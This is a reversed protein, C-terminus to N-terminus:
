FGFRLGVSISRNAARSGISFGGGSFRFDGALSNSQAFLPSNLNGIPTGANVRNFVNTTVVSFNLSYRRPAPSSSSASKDEGFKFEKAFILLPFIFNPGRGANREIIKDGPAPNPDLAGFPTVVVGPKNLNATIAPRETFQADGNIDRGITINYPLGSRIVVGGNLRMGWPLSISPNLNFFHRIDIASPGNEQILDYSNAPFSMVGDTDGTAKNLAYASYFSLRGLLAGSQITVVFQRQNLYGSSENLFVNGTDGFPRTGSDPIPANINRSRLAHITRSNIFTASVTMGKPLRREISISSHMSYPAQLDDAVRWITQPVAFSTLLATSLVAPFLDLIAPDNVVFQQQNVGNFRNAQLVHIENFREYFLGFGGRIITRPDSGGGFPAWGFAIRPAFSSRRNINNQREYRLGLSLTFNSRIRWDDQLFGGFDVQSVRAEPNGGAISFQAPRAGPEKLLTRRYQDLSTFSFTGAFNKPSVDLIRAYRLRGGGRWTHKGSAFTLIDTVEIRDNNNFSLGTNAGGGVFSELAQVTPTLDDGEDEKRSHIFQFRVENVSRKGLVATESLQLTYNKNSTDYARSPLSFEGIGANKLSSQAYNFRGIASHNANLQSDTRLGFSNNRLPTVVAQRFPAPAFEEDITVASIVANEDWESRRVDLFFNTRKPVIPGSVNGSYSRLQFPARNLVFPNRSNLSEDNFQGGAQGHWIPSGPRTFIEIRGYGLRESESTFPNANIRVERISDRSPVQGGSFGDVFIQPGNLGATPGVLMQLYATLSEPDEPLNELEKRGLVVASLNSDSAVGARNASEVTVDQRMLKIAFAINLTESRGAAIKIEAREFPAFGASSARLKYVGPALDTFGYIGQGNTTTVKDVGKEDTVTVTAGVVVGGNQDAIKGQLSGRTQQGNCITNCMALVLFTSNIALIFKHAINM